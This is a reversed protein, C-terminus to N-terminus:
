RNQERYQTPTMGYIRQFKTSFYTASSFGCERAVDQMKMDTLIIQEAARNIRYQMLYINPSSNLQNKFIRFCERESIRVSAAIEGVGIDERYHEAIFRLMSRIRQNVKEEARLVPPYNQTMWRWLACVAQYFDFEYGDAKEEYCRMALKLRDVSERDRLIIAPHYSHDTVPEVYKRYLRRPLNLFSKHFVISYYCAQGDLLEMSHLVNTNIFFGQDESLHYEQGNCKLCMSGCVVLGYELEDHWHEQQLGATCSSLDTFYVECPYDPTGHLDNEKFDPGIRLKQLIKAM